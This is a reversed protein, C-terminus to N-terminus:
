IGRKLVEVKVGQMDFTYVVEEAANYEYTESDNCYVCALLLLFVGYKM